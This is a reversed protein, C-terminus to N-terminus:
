TSNTINMEIEDFKHNLAQIPNSILKNDNIEIIDVLLIPRPVRRVVSWSTAPEIGPAEM